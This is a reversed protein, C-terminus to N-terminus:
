GLVGQGDDPPATVGSDAGRVTEGATIRVVTGDAATGSTWRNEGALIWALLEADVEIYLTRPESM